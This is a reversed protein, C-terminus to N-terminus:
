SATFFFSLAPETPLHWQRGPQSLPLLSQAVPRSPSQSIPLNPSQSIPLNPSQSPLTCSTQHIIVQLLSSLSRSLHQTTNSQSNPFQSPSPPIPVLLSNLAPLCIPLVSTSPLLFGPWNQHVLLSLKVTDLKRQHISSSMPPTSPPPSHHNKHGM